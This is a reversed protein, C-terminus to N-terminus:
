IQASHKRGSVQYMQDDSKIFYVEVYDSFIGALEEAPMLDESLGSNMDAHHANIRQRSLGHAVTLTGDERLLQSLHAILVRPNDFHPLANYIIIVDYKKGPEATEAPECLFQVKPLPFKKEAEAIMNPSIDIGTISAAGRKLYDPILIGTGCAVDLIDMGPSIEAHDLIASIVADNHVTKQDWEPALQDFYSIVESKDIM